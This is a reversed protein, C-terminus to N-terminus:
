AATPRIASCVCLHLPQSDQVLGAESTMLLRDSADTQPIASNNVQLSLLLTFSPCCALNVSLCAFPIPTPLTIQDACAPFEDTHQEHVGGGGQAVCVCVCILLLQVLIATLISLYCVLTIMYVSWVRMTSCIWCDVCLCMCVRVTIKLASYQVGTRSFPTPM